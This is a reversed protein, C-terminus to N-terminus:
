RPRRPPPRRASCHRVRPAASSWCPGHSVAWGNSPEVSPRAPVTSCRPPTPGWSGCSRSTTSTRSCRWVVTTPPARSWGCRSPATSPPCAWPRDLTRWGFPAEGEALPGRQEMYVDLAPRGDLELIVNDRARTVMLPGSVPAWGHEVAVGLPRSSNIWVAIVGQGIVERDLGLWTPSMQEDSAAAGGVLPVRAGAIEYAGQVVDRQGGIHGSSLLLLASHSGTPGAAAKAEAAAQRSAEHLDGDQERAAAVGMGLEGGPVHLAVTGHIGSGAVFGLITNCAVLRAPAAAAAGADVLPRPEYGGGAFLFVVDEPQPTTDGLASVIAETAAAAPDAASSHGTRSSRLPSTDTMAEGTPM